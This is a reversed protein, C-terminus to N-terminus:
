ASHPHNYPLWRLPVTDLAVEHRSRTYLAGCTYGAKALSWDKMHCAYMYKAPDALTFVLALSVLVM